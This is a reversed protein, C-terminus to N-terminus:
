GNYLSPFQQHRRVRIECPAIGPQLLIAKGHDWVSLAVPFAIHGSILLQSYYDGLDPMETVM